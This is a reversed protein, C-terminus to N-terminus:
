IESKKESNLAKRKFAWIFFCLNTAKKKTLVFAARKMELSPEEDCVNVVSSKMVSVFTPQSFKKKGVIATNTQAVITTNGM